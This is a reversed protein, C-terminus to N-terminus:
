RVDGTFIIEVRRNRRRGADTENSDIPKASGYGVTEMSSEPIGMSVLYAKVAEARLASLQQNQEPDGKNDSHGGIEVTRNRALLLEAIRKLEPKSSPLIEASNSEFFLNNFRIEAQTRIAEEMTMIEIDEEIHEFGSSQLFDYNKSIPVLMTDKTYLGIRAGLPVVIFYSGDKPNSTYSGLQEGNDLNEVYITTGIPREYDDLFAGSITAVAEPRAFEPLTVSFIDQAEGDMNAFYALEGDTSIKYGWDKEPTNIEKGLNLPSSWDTWAHHDQRKAMFVDLDGYGGWGGSSFFLTKMDSHIFPTREDALTNIGPGLNMPASWTSDEKFSIFIDLDGRGEVEKVFLLARNDPTFIGDAQWTSANIVAPFPNFDTWGNSGYTGLYLKGTMFAILQTGDSSIGLPAEDSERNIGELLKPQGWVGNRKRSVFIDEQAHSDDRDTACFYLYKNDASIVPLYESGNPTNVPNGLNVKKISSQAHTLNHYRAMVLPNQTRVAEPLSDIKAAALEWNQSALESQILKDVVLFALDTGPSETLFLYLNRSQITLPEEKLLDRGMRAWKKDAQLRENDPFHEGFTTEFTRLTKISGDRTYKEYFSTWYGAVDATGGRAKMVEALVELPIQDPKQALISDVIVPILDSGPHTQIYRYYDPLHRSELLTRSTLYAIQEKAEAAYRGAPNTRAFRALQAISESNRVQEYRMSDRYQIATLQVPYGVAFNIFANVSDMSPEPLMEEWRILAKGARASDLLHEEAKYVELFHDYAVVTHTDKAQQLAALTIYARRKKLSSATLHFEKYKRKNEASAKRYYFIAKRCHFYASDLDKYPPPAAELMVSLDYNALVSAPNRSYEDGVLMFIEYYKKEKFYQRYRFQGFLANSQLIGVLLFLLVQRIM